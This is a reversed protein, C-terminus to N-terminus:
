NRHLASLLPTRANSRQHIGDQVPSALSHTESKMVPVYTQIMANSDSFPPDNKESDEDVGPTKPLAVYWAFYFVAVATIMGVIPFRTKFM